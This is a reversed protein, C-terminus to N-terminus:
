FQRIARMVAIYLLSLRIWFTQPRPPVLPPEDIIDIHETRIVERGMDNLYVVVTSKCKMPLPTGDKAYPLTAHYELRIFGGSANVSYLYHPSPPKLHQNIDIAIMTSETQGAVGAFM